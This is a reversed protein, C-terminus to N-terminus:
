RSGFTDVLALGLLTFRDLLESTDRLVDLEKLHKPMLDHFESISAPTSPPTSEPSSELTEVLSAPIGTEIFDAIGFVFPIDGFNATVSGSAQEMRVFPRISSCFAATGIPLIEIFINILCLIFSAILLM